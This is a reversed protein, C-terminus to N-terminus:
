PPLYVITERGPTVTFGLPQYLAESEPTPGLVAARCGRALAEQLRVVALARGLGQRRCSAIVVVHQLLVISETFHATAMGVPEGQHTALYHQLACGDTLGLSAFVERARREDAAGDFLNHRRMISLVAELQALTRAPEIRVGQPPLARPLELERLDAGMDVGGVDRRAGALVLQRSVSANANLWMAPVERERFWALTSDVDKETATSAVVGNETNSCIGSIVAFGDGVARTEVFPSSRLFSYYSAQAALAASSWSTM